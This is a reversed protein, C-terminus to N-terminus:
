VWAMSRELFHNEFLHMEEQEYMGNRLAILVHVLLEQERAHM